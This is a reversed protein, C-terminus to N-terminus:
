RSRVLLIGPQYFKLSAGGRFPNAIGRVSAQTRVEVRDKSQTLRDRRNRLGRCITHLHRRHAPRWTAKEELNQFLKKRPTKVCGRSTKTSAYSNNNISKNSITGRRVREQKLGQSPTLRHSVLCMSYQTTGRRMTEETCSLGYWM